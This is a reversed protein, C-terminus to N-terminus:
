PGARGSREAEAVHERLARRAEAALTRDGARALAALQDVLIQPLRLVLRGDHEVTSM